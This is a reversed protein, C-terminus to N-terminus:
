PFNFRFLKWYLSLAGLGGFFQNIQNIHHSKRRSVPSSQMILLKVVQVSWFINSPWILSSSISPAHLVCPLLSFHMCCELRFVRLSAWKSSRPTYPLIINFHIKPFYSPFTYVPNMQSLIPVLPPSNHVRYHVKTNWLIRPIKQSASHSNAEWSPSQEM